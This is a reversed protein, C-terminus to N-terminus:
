FFVSSLEDNDLQGNDNADLYVTIGAVPTIGDAVTGGYAIRLFGVNIRLPYGPLEISPFNPMVNFLCKKPFSLEHMLSPM